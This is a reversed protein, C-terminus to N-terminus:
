TVLVNPQVLSASRVASRTTKARKLGNEVQRGTQVAGDPMALVACWGDVRSWDWALIWRVNSFASTARETHIFRQAYARGTDPASAPPYALAPRVEVPQYSSTSRIDDQIERHPDAVFRQLVIGPYLGRGDMPACANMWFSLTFRVSILM